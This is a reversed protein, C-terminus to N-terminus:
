DGGGVGQKVGRKVAKARAQTLQFTLEIGPPVSFIILPEDTTVAPDIRFDLVPLHADAPTAGIHPPDVACLAACALLARGLFAASDPSLDDIGGVRRSQDDIIETQRNQAVRALYDM